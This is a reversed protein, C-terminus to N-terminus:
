GRRATLGVIKGREARGRFAAIEVFGATELAAGAMANWAGVSGARGALAWDHTLGVLRAGPKLVRALEACTAAFPECLQLANVAIASDFTADPAPVADARAVHLAVRGVAIAARNARAATRAMTTSPDVGVVEGATMRAALLRVGVGPGFGIVLVHHDAAPALREIAEAEAARNARAMVWAVFAGAAGDFVSAM